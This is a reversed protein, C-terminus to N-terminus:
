RPMFQGMIQAAVAQAPNIIGAEEYGNERVTPPPPPPPPPPAWTSATAYVPPSVLRARGSLAQKLEMNERMTNELMEYTKPAMFGELMAAYKEEDKAQQVWSTFMKEKAERDSVFTPDVVQYAPIANQTASMRRVVNIASQALQDIRQANVLASGRAEVAALGEASTRWQELARDREAWLSEARDANVMLIGQVHTPLESIMQPLQDRDATLVDGALSVAQDQSYGNDVLTRAIDDRVQTLPDDYKERFAPAKSLDTRGIEEELEKIRADKQNLQEGFGTKEEQIKKTSEVLRNFKNLHEEAQRRYANMQARMAAWSHNQQENMNQPPAIPQEPPLGPLTQLDSLPDFTQAAPDGAKYRNTFDVPRPPQTQPQQTQPQQTQPQQTQPQQTQPQQMQPQQMQPQQMQPQQMQPQQMQPQQMQPQQMQSQQAQANLAPALISQVFEAGDAAASTVGTEGSVALEQPNQQVPTDM